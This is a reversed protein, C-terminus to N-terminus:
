SRCAARSTRTAPLLRRLDPLRVRLRALLVDLAARRPRRASCRTSWRRSTTPSSCRRSAAGRRDAVARRAIQARTITRPREIQPLLLSPACSRARRGSAPFVRRVARLRAPRADARDRPPVRRHRLQDDHVHLVLHRDAPDVHLTSPTSSGASAACCRRRPQGRLFQLVQLLRADGPQVRPEAICRAAQAPAPATAGGLLAGVFFDVVTSGVLLSLFRWDWAAYFYYSAALLMWNQARHPLVRYLAYVVVFFAVFQLSKFVMPRPRRPPGPSLRRGEQRPWRSVPRRYDGRSLVKELWVYLVIFLYRSGMEKIKLKSVGTTRNYWTIPVVTYSYGRM